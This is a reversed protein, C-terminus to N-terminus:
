SLTRGSVFSSLCSSLTMDADLDKLWLKYDYLLGASSLGIYKGSM